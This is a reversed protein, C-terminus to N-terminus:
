QPAPTGLQTMTAGNHIARSNLGPASEANVSKQSFYARNESKAQERFTDRYSAALAENRGILSDVAGQLRGYTTLQEYAATRANKAEVTQARLADLYSKTAQSTDNTGQALKTAADRLSVMKQYAYDADATAQRLGSLGLDIKLDGRKFTAALRDTLQGIDAFASEFRSKASNLVGDIEALFTAKANGDSKTRLTLYAPFEQGGAM